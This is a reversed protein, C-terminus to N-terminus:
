NRFFILIINKILNRNKSPDSLTITQIVNNSLMPIVKLTSLNFLKVTNLPKIYYLYPKMVLEESTNLGASSYYIKFEIKKFNKKHLYRYNFLYEGGKMIVPSSSVQTEENKIKIEDISIKYDDKKYAYININIENIPHEGTNQLLFSFDYFQYDFLDLCGNIIQSSSDLVKIDLQPIEPFIKINRLNIKEKKNSSLSLPDKSYNDWNFFLGNGNWDVFQVAGTNFIEYKIGMINSLGM